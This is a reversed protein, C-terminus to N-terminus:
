PDEDSLGKKFELELAAAAVDRGPEAPCAVPLLGSAAGAGEESRSSRLPPELRGDVASEPM